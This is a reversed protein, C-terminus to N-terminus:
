SDKKECSKRFAQLVSLCVDEPPHKEDLDRAIELSRRFTEVFERCGPCEKLHEQIRNCQEYALEGDVYDSLINLIEKCNM